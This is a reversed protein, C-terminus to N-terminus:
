TGDLPGLPAANHGTGQPAVRLGLERAADVTLIVDDVSAAHVVAPPRGAAPRQHVALQWAQRAIDWEPDGPRALDGDLRVGLADLGTITDLDAELFATM